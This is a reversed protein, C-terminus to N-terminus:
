AADDRRRQAALMLMTIVLAGTSVAACVLLSVSMGDLFAERAAAVAADAHLARAAAVGTAASSRITAATGSPLNAHDISDRYATTVVTGLVAVGLASGIQRLTLMLASGSGARAASLTRMAVATTTTMALGIGAGFVTMWTALVVYGSATTLGGTVAGATMLALGVIVPSTPRVRSALRSTILVGVVLGGVMPLLRLGTGLADVREINQLYQPVNFFVGFMAFSVITALLTGLVFDRSRFLAMDILPERRREVWREWIVLVALALAGAAILPISFLDGWGVNGANIVGYSLGVIGIATLGIGVADLRSRLGNRSEPILLAVAVLAFLVVPVNLLFIVGWDFHQLLVGGLIPGLPFGVLNASTVIAVATPREEPSFLVVVQSMCLSILIAAGVGLLARALILMGTTPSLACLLSGAAFVILGGVLVRKRGWRDGLLGAPLLAIAMTLIYANNIWQLDATSAHLDVALTPLATNLITGDLGVTLVVLAAATLAWWRRQNSMNLETASASM